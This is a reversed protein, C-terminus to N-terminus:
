ENITWEDDESKVYGKAVLFNLRSLMEDQSVSRAKFDSSEGLEYWLDLSRITRFHSIVELIFEDIKELDKIENM